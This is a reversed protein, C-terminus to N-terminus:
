NEAYNLYTLYNGVRERRAECSLGAVKLRVTVSCLGDTRM